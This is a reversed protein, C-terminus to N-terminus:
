ARLHRLPQRPRLHATHAIQPGPTDDPRDLRSQRSRAPDHAHKHLSPLEAAPAFQSRLDGAGRHPQNRDRREKRLLHVLERQEVARHHQPRRPDGEKARGRSPVLVSLDDERGQGPRLTGPLDPADTLEHQRHWSSRQFPSFRRLISEADATGLRLATAYKVMQDYHRRILGWDIPRTLVPQLNQYADPQGRGPRYLKQRSIPKLRPLLEFGLLHAFAFAVESQGHSDVYNKEVSMDTCHRLVGEIMAAVESSSCSKLQSYICVSKKAVHWYIMVGRGGYRIHWETMLNQDWAGFKKSDSACATTGEGWIERRRAAFIANVVRAIAARLHERTVYKRRVYRLDEHGSDPDSASMRKLGTNTGLGYLCLLLRKRLTDPDLIERSASTSFLDTFAIRLDAEKLIDLLGTMPWHMGVQTKLGKLNPPEPLAKLPSLLIRGGGYESIRVSPNKPVNKDLMALSAEMERQLGEVFRDAEIPQGLEEYYEERREAFDQPLDEDPNRYRDAGVVWVERRRLGERLARLVCVEYGVREVRERGGGDSKSLLDAWADPVVGQMPVEEELAYSRVTSGDYKRLLQLAKIAPQHDVNNSHFDLAELLPSLMQRYHGRYSARLRAHVNLRFAPGTNKFERVLDKLTQEGIVPYLAERITQDPNEVAAEAMRFLLNTKGSVKKLDELLEKEVRREARANTRHVLQIFLEVLSDSIERERSWLLVSLLTAKVAPPHGRLESPRETAARRRYTEVLKPSISAFLDSPIGLERVRRLKDIEELVSDLSVRGPDAKLWGLVSRRRDWSAPDDVPIAEGAESTALLADMM